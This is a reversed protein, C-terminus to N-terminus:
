KTYETIKYVEIIKTDDYGLSKIQSAIKKAENLTKIGRIEAFYRDNRFFVGIPLEKQKGIDLAVMNAVSLDKYEGIRIVYELIDTKVVTGIASETEEMKKEVEKEKKEIVTIIEGKYPTDVIDGFTLVIWNVPQQKEIKNKQLQTIYNNALSSELSLPFKRKLLSFAYLSKEYNKEIDNRIFYYKGAYFLLRAGNDNSYKILKSALEFLKPIDNYQKIEFYVKIKLMLGKYVIFNNVTQSLLKDIKELSTKYEKKNALLLAQMYIANDTEVKSYNALSEEYRGMVYFIEGLKEVSNTWYEFDPYKEEITFLYELIKPYETEISSLVYLSYPVYKSSPYKKILNIYNTKAEEYKKLKYLDNANKFILFEDTSESFAIVPILLFYILIKKM